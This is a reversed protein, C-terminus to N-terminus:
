PPAPLTITRGRDDVIRVPEARVPQALGLLLAFLAILLGIAWGRRWPHGDAM